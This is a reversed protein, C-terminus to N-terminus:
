VNNALPLWEFCANQMEISRWENERQGDRENTDEQSQVKRRTFPM